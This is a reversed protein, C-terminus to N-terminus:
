KIKYKKEIEFDISIRILKKARRSKMINMAMAVQAKGYSIVLM